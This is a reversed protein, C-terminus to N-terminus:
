AGRARGGRSGVSRGVAAAVEAAIAGVDVGPPLPQAVGAERLAAHVRAETMRLVMAPHAGAFDPLVVQDIDIILGPVSM